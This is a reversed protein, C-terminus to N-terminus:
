CAPPRQPSPRLAQEESLGYQIAKRLNPLFKKKDKLDTASACVAGRSQGASRRQRAGNGLAEARGASIRSADYVDEVNYADPFNLSVIFARGHGEHRRPAPVRRRPRQHHVATKFEDGLKDARLANLKDSVEFFQRCAASSRCPGAAVPKARQSPNRQNWDADLYTQRLLAISGMLSGPYDQTSTGKNFSFGAAARDTLIM